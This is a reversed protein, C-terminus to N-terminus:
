PLGRLVFIKHNTSIMHRVNNRAPDKRLSRFPNLQVDMLMEHQVGWEAMLRLLEKEDRASDKDSHSTFVIPTGTSLLHKLTEHWCDDDNEGAFGVGSNFLAYCDPPPDQMYDAAVDISGRHCRLSIGAGLGKPKEEVQSELVEHGVMELELQKFEFMSAMERWAEAPLQTEGRSGVFVIKLLGTPEAMMPRVALLGYAVSLPYTLFHSLHRTASHHVRTFDRATLYSDWGGTCAGPNMMSFLPKAPTSASGIGLAVDLQEGLNAAAPMKEFEPRDRNTQLDMLDLHIIRLDDVYMAHTRDAGYCDASCHSPFGSELCSFLLPSVKGCGPCTTEQAYAQALKKLRPSKSELMPPLHMPIAGLKEDSKDNGSWIWNHMRTWIMITRRPAAPLRSPVLVRALVRAMTTTTTSHPDGM